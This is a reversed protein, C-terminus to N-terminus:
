PPHDPIVLLTKRSRMSRSRFPKELQADHSRRRFRITKSKSTRRSASIKSKGNATYDTFQRAHRRSVAAM